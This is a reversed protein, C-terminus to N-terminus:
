GVTGCASEITARLNQATMRPPGPEDSRVGVALGFSLGFVRMDVAFRLRLPLFVGEECHAGSEYLTCLQICDTDSFLLVTWRGISEGFRVGNRFRLWGM